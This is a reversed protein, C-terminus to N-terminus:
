AEIAVVYLIVYENFFEVLDGKVLEGAAGLFAPCSGDAEGFGHQLEVVFLVAEWLVNPAATCCCLCLRAAFFRVAFEEAVEQSHAKDLFQPHRCASDEAMHCPRPHRPLMNVATPYLLLVALIM